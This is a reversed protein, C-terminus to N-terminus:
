MSQSLLQISFSVLLDTSAKITHSSQLYQILADTSGRHHGGGWLDLWGTYCESNVQLCLTISIFLCLSISLSLLPQGFRVDLYNWFWFVSIFSNQPIRTAYLFFSFRFEIFKFYESNFSDIVEIFHFINSILLDIHFNCLIVWWHGRRITNGWTRL